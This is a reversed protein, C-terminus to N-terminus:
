RVIRFDDGSIRIGKKEPLIGLIYHYDTVAMNYDIVARSENLRAVALDEQYELLDHTTAIGLAYKEEEEKLKQESYKRTILTADMKNRATGLRVEAGAIGTALERRSKEISLRTKEVANIRQDLQAKAARRGVPLDMWLGVEWSPYQLSSIDQMAGSYDDQLGGLGVSTELNLSPKASDRAAATELNSIKM